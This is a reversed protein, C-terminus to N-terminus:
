SQINRESNLLFEDFHLQYANVKHSYTLETGGVLERHESLFNRIKAIDRSISKASIDYEAALAKVSIHEGRIGRMFISLIRSEQEM